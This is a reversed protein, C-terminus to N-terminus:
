MVPKQAVLLFYGLARKKGDVETRVETYIDDPGVAVGADEFTLVHLGLEEEIMRILPERFFAGEFCFDTFHSPTGGDCDPPAATM